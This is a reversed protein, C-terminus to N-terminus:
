RFRFAAVIADLEALHASYHDETATYTLTYIMSKYAAIYQKYRYVVGDVKLTFEMVTAQRGGLDVKETEAILVFDDGMMKKMMAKSMEMYEGVSMQETQPMYPAVIVNTRDTPVYAAYVSQDMSIEWSSPVYFCYAVDKGFASKMGAPADKGSDLKKVFDKPYYPEDVFEFYELMKEVDASHLEYMEDTAVFSFVYFADRYECIVQLIDLQVGNVIARYRYRYGNIGGLTSALCEGEVLTLKGDLARDSVAKACYSEFYWAIRDATAAPDKGAETLAGSMEALLGESIPYRNVSVTSQKSLNRFAGSVGFSTNLNWTTPVYLKYDAGAYSAIMMGDPLDSDGKGSCSALPLCIAAVCLLCLLLRFISKM